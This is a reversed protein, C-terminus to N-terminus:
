SPVRRAAMPPAPEPNRIHVTFFELFRWAALEGSM